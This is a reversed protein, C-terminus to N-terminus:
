QVILFWNGSLIDEAVAPTFAQSTGGNSTWTGSVAVGDMGVISGTASSNTTTTIVGTISNVSISTIVPKILSLKAFIFKLNNRIGQLWATLSKASVPLLTADEAQDALTRNGIITDTAANAAIKDATVASSNVKDTTVANQAIKDATVAGNGIKNATVSSNAIKEEVVAGSNIKDTTVASNAMKSSTVAGSKIVMGGNSDVNIDEGGQVVGLSTNTATTVTDVGDDQLVLGDEDGPDTYYVFVHNYTDSETDSNKFAIGVRPVIPPTQANLWSDTDAKQPYDTGFVVQFPMFYRRTGGNISDIQAQLDTDAIIRSDTEEAVSDRIDGHSGSDTNHSAIDTGIQDRIDNHASSDVNHNSISDAISQRIDNHASDDTNHAAISDDVDQETLFDGSVKVKGNGAKEIASIKDLLSKPTSDIFGQKFEEKTM